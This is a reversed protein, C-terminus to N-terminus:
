TAHRFGMEELGAVAGIRWVDTHIVALTLESSYQTEQISIKIDKGLAASNFYCALSPSTSCYTVRLCHGLTSVLDTIYSM